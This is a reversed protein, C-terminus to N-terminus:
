RSHGGSSSGGSSGSSHSAPAHSAPAPAPAPPHPRSVSTAPTRPPEPPCVTRGPGRDVAGTLRGPDSPGPARDVTPGDRRRVPGGAVHVPIGGAVWPRWGYRCWSLGFGLMAPSGFAAYTSSFTLAAGWPYYDYPYAPAVVDEPAAASGDDPTAPAADVPAPASAMDILLQLLRDSAGTKKLDALDDASLREMPAHARVFTTILDESIGAAVLRRVDEKSCYAALPAAMLLFAAVPRLIRAMTWEM